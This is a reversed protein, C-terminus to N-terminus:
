IVAHRQFCHPLCYYNIMLGRFCISNVVYYYKLFFVSLSCLHNREMGTFKRHFGQPQRQGGDTSSHHFILSPTQLCPPSSGKSFEVWGSPINLAIVKWGPLVFLYISFSEQSVRSSTCSIVWDQPSPPNPFGLHHAGQQYHLWGRVAISKLLTSWSDALTWTLERAEMKGM